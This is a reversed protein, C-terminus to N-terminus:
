KRRMECRSRMSQSKRPGWKWLIVDHDVCKPDRTERVETEGRYRAVDVRGTPRVGSASARDTPGCRFEHPRDRGPLFRPDFGRCLGVDIRECHDDYLHDVFKECPRDCDRM